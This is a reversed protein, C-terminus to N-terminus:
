QHRETSYKQAVVCAADYIRQRRAHYSQRPM